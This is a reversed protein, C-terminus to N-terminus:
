RLLDLVRQPTINAQALMANSSQQLVQFRTLEIVERAMDVDRIRSESASMNQLAVNLSNNTYEMRNQIAGLKARESSIRQLAKDVLGIAEEAVRINTLDLDEIGLAKVDTRIINAKATHGQNPGIQFQIFADRVHMTFEYQGTGNDYTQPTIGFTAKLVNDSSADALDSFTIQGEEGPTTAYFRLTQTGTEVEAALKAGTLQVSTNYQDAISVLRHFSTGLMPDTAVIGLSVGTGDQDITYFSLNDLGVGDTVVAFGYGVALQDYAYDQSVPNGNVNATVPPIGAFGLQAYSGLLPGSFTFGSYAGTELSEFRIYGAENYARIMLGNDDIQQNIALVLSDIGGGTYDTNLVISTFATPDHDDAISFTMPNAAFNFANPGLDSMPLTAQAYGRSGGSGTVRGNRLGLETSGALAAISVYASSGTNTTYFQLAYSDNLRVRAYSTNGGVGLSLQENMISAVQEMSFDGAPVVVSVDVVSAGVRSDTVHFSVATAINIGLTASVTRAYANSPPQFMLDLGEILGAARHGAIQTTLVARSGPAVGLNAVAISYVPDEPAVVQQFALARVLSEEGTFNVRGILGNKGSTVNFQGNSEGFDIFQCSSAEFHLGNGLQDTTMAAEIRDALQDLTLDKSVVLTGQHNDGQIYLTQPQDLIFYGNNDYFNSISQLTTTGSAIEGDQRVFIASRQQQAVGKMQTLGNITWKEQPMVNVSFDSFTLVAGTVVGDLNKPSSTSVNATGSGDLLKKTNFETGWSIRNIDEKLQAIEKQIELRDTTTLTDNSAQIALERMRQLMSHIENLAGEATQILSIGDQVNMIARNIGKVQTRLKESITLGAADDAAKNIRLGSSLREISGSLRSDNLALNMHANLATVNTNIRLAM